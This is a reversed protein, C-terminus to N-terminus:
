GIDALEALMKELKAKVQERDLAPGSVQRDGDIFLGDGAPRESNDIIRTLEEIKHELEACRRQLRQYESSILAVQEALRKLAARASV